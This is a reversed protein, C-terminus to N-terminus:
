FHCVRENWFLEINDIKFYISGTFTPKDFPIHENPLSLMIEANNKNITAWGYEKDFGDCKFGLKKCYFDITEQLQKTYLVPIVKNKIESLNFM